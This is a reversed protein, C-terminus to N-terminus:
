STNLMWCMNLKENIMFVQVLKKIPRLETTRTTQRANPM